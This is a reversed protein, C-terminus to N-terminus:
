ILEKLAEIKFLLGKIDRYLEEVLMNLEEKPKLKVEPDPSKSLEPVCFNCNSICKVFTWPNSKMVSVPKKEFIKDRALKCKSAYITKGDHYQYWVIDGKKYIKLM